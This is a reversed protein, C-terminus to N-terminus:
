MLGSIQKQLNGARSAQGSHSGSSSPTGSGGGHTHSATTAALEQVVGILDAIVQLVDVGGGGMAITPVQITVAASAKLEIM